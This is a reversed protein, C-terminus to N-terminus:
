FQICKKLELWSSQIDSVSDLYKMGGTIAFIKNSDFIHWTVGFIQVFLADHLELDLMANHGNNKLNYETLLTDLKGDYEIKVISYHKIIKIIRINKNKSKDLIRRFISKENEMDMTGGEDNKYITCVKVETSQNDAVLTTKYRSEEEFVMKISNDDLSHVGVIRNKIDAWDLRHSFIFTRCTKVLTQM